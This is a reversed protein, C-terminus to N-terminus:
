QVLSENFLKEKLLDVVKLGETVTLRPNQEKILVMMKNAITNLRSMKEKYSEFCVSTGDKYTLKM